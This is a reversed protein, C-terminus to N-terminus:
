SMSPSSRIGGGSNYVSFLLIDLYIIHKGIGSVCYQGPDGYESRKICGGFARLIIITVNIHLCELGWTKEKRWLSRM